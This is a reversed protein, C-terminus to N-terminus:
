AAQNFRRLVQDYFNPYFKLIVSKVEEEKEASLLVYRGQAITKFFEEFRDCTEIDKGQPRWNLDEGAIPEEEQRAPPNVANKDSQYVLSIKFVLPLNESGLTTWYKKNQHAFEQVYLHMKEAGLIKEMWKWQEQNCSYLVNRIKGETLQSALARLQEETLSNQNNPFSSSKRELLFLSGEKKLRYLLAKIGYIFPAIAFGVGVSVPAICFSLSLNFLHSDVATAPIHVINGTSSLSEKYHIIKGPTAQMVIGAILVLVSMVIGIILFVQGQDFPGYYLSQIKNDLDLEQRAIANTAGSM